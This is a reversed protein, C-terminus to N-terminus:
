TTEKLKSLDLANRAANIALKLYQKNKGFKPVLSAISSLASHYNLLKEYDIDAETKPPPAPPPPRKFQQVCGNPCYFKGYNMACSKIFDQPVMHTIGCTICTEKEYGEVSHGMKCTVTRIYKEDLRGTHGNPCYIQSYGRFKALFFDRDLASVLGCSPCTDRIWQVNPLAEDVPKKQNIDVVNDTQEEKTDAMNDKTLNSTSAVTIVFELPNNVKPM